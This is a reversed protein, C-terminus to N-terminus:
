FYIGDEVPRTKLIDLFDLGEQTKGVKVLSENIVVGANCFGQVVEGPFLGQPAPVTLALTDKLEELLGEGSSRDELMEVWFEGNHKFAIGRVVGDSTYEQLHVRVIVTGEARNGEVDLRHDICFEVVVDIVLFEKCNDFGKLLPVGVEFSGPVSDLNVRVVVVELVEGCVEGDVVAWSSQSGLRIGQGPSEINVGLLSKLGLMVGEVISHNNGGFMEVSHEFLVVEPAVVGVIRRVLRECEKVILLHKKPVAADVGWVMSLNAKIDELGELEDRPSAEPKAYFLVDSSVYLRALGTELGFNGAMSGISKKFGKRYFSVRPGGDGHIVDDFEDGELVDGRMNGMFNSLVEPAEVLEKVFFNVSGVLGADSGGSITPDEAQRFVGGAMVMGQYIDSALTGGDAKVFAGSGAGGRPDGHTWGAGGGHVLCRLVVWRPASLARS